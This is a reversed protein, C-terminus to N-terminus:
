AVIGIGHQGGGLALEGLDIEVEGALADAAELLIGCGGRSPGDKGAFAGLDHLEEDGAAVDGGDAVGFDGVEPRVFYRSILDRLSETKITKTSLRFRKLLM